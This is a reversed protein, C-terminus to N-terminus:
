SKKPLAFVASIGVCAAIAISWSAVTQMGLATREPLSFTMERLSEVNYVVLAAGGALLLLAVLARELWVEVSENAARSERGVVRAAMRVAFDSPLPDLPPNRLARAILRYQAVNPDDGARAGLREARVANEQARWERQEREDDFDRETSM